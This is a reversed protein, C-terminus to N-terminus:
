LLEEFFQFRNSLYFSLTNRQIDGFSFDGEPYFNDAVGLGDKGLPGVQFKQDRDWNRLIFIVRLDGWGRKVFPPSSPIKMPRLESFKTPFM